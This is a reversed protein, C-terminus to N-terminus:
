AVEEAAKAEGYKKRFKEVRGASDVFKQKGTFFPHCNSCIEVRLKPVTNMTPFEAGCACAITMEVCKPHIDKKM